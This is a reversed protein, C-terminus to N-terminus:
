QSKPMINIPAITPAQFFFTYFALPGYDTILPWLDTILESRLSFRMRSCLLLDKVGGAGHVHIDM